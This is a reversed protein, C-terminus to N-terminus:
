HSNLYKRPKSLNFEEKHTYVLHEGQLIHWYCTTFYMAGEPVPMELKPVKQDNEGTLPTNQVSEM